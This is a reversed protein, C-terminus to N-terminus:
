IYWEMGEKAAVTAAFCKKAEEEIKAQESDSREPSHHFLCLEKVGASKAVMVCDEWTSHGWGKRGMGPICGDYEAQTYSADMLLLDCGYVFKVLEKIFQPTEKSCETDSIYCFISGDCQFKYLSGGNPHQNPFTEVVVEPILYEGDTAELWRSQLNIKEGPIYTSIVNKSHLADFSVPFTPSRMVDKLMKKFDYFEDNSGYIHFLNAAQYFPTFFPLGQIHDWHMHSIFLDAYIGQDSVMWTKMLECIGSGADVIIRHQGCEIEVCPTNGGYVLTEPGPVPRTGRAGWIKVRM